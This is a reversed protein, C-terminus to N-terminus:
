GDFRSLLWTVQNFIATDLSSARFNAYRLLSLTLFLAIYGGILVLVFILFARDSRREGSGLWRRVGTKDGGAEEPEAVETTDKDAM